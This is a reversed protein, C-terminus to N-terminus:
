PTGPRASSSPHPRVAFRVPRAHDVPRKSFVARRSADYKTPQTEYRTPRRWEAPGTPCAVRPSPRATQSPLGEARRGGAAPELPTSPRSVIRSGAPPQKTSASKEWGEGIGSADPSAPLLRTTSPEARGRQKAVLRGGMAGSPAFSRATALDRPRPERKRRAQGVFHGQRRPSGPDFRLADGCRQRLLRCKRRRRLERPIRRGGSRPQSHRRRNWCCPWHSRSRRPCRRPPRFRKPHRFPHPFRQRPRPRPRRSPPPSTARDPARFSGRRRPRRRPCVKRRAGM